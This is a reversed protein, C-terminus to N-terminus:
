KKVVTVPTGIPTWDYLEKAAGIGLRICGHSVPIGLHNLGEKKGGPWEPLEHLGHGRTTFAMWYPMWLSASNSWARPNKNLVKFTGVPTPTSPKGTSVLRSRFAIGDLEQTLTQTKLNIRIGKQMKTSTTSTPSFANKIEDGDLFGDADTDAVLPNTGFLLELRNSLGDKDYDKDKLDGKGLPNHNQIIELKDPFTDGDSDAKQPDTGFVQTEWLDPLGDGDADLAVDVMPTAEQAHVPTIAVLSCFCLSLCLWRWDIFSLSTM